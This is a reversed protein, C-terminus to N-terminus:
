SSPGGEVIPVTCSMIQTVVGAITVRLFVDHTEVCLGGMDGSTFAWQFSTATPLTFKGNAITATLVPSDPYGQRCIYMELTATTLDVDAGTEDVLSGTEIWDENNSVAALSGTYM